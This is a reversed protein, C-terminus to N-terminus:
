RIELMNTEQKKEMVTEKSLCSLQINMALITMKETDWSLAENWLLDFEKLQIHM